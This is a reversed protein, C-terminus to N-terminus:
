QPDSSPAKELRFSPKEAAAVSEDKDPASSKEALIHAFAQYIKKLQPNNNVVELTAMSREYDLDAKEFCDIHVQHNGSQDVLDVEYCFFQKGEITTLSRKIKHFVASDRDFEAANGARGQKAKFRSAVIKDLEDTSLHEVLKLNNTLGTLLSLAAPTPELAQPAQVAAPTATRASAVEHKRFNAESHTDWWIRVLPYVTPILPIILVVGLVNVAIFTWFSWKRWRSRKATGNKLPEMRNLLTQRTQWTNLCMEVVGWLAPVSRDVDLLHTTYKQSACDDFLRSRAGLGSILLFDSKVQVFM